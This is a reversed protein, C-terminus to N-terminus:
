GRGLGSGQVRGATSRVEVVVNLLSEVMTSFSRALESAEDRAESLALTRTLDGRSTANAAAARERIPRPRPLPDSWRGAARLGFVVDSSVILVTSWVPDPQLRPIVVGVITYLMAVTVFWAALKKQM